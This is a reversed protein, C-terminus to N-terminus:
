PVFNSNGYKQRKHSKLKFAMSANLAAAAPFNVSFYLLWLGASEHVGNKDSELKYASLFSLISNTDFLDIMAENDTSAPAQDM